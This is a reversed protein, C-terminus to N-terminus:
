KCFARSEVWGFSSEDSAVVVRANADSWFKGVATWVSGVLGGTIKSDENDGDNTVVEDVDAGRNVVEDHHGDRRGLSRVVVDLVERGVGLAVSASAGFELLLEVVDLRGKEFAVKLAAEDNDHVNAGLQICVKITDIHGNSSAFFLAENNRSQISAGKSALLTVIDHYGRFSAERLAASDDYTPDANNDLLWQVALYQGATAAARLADDGGESVDLGLPKLAELFEVDGRGAAAVVAEDAFDELDIAGKELHHMLVPVLEMYVNNYDGGSSSSTSSSSASTVSGRRTSPPRSAIVCDAYYDWDFYLMSAGARLLYHLVLKKGPVWRMAKNLAAHKIEPREALRTRYVVDLLLGAVYLQETRVAECLARHEYRDLAPKHGLLPVLCEIAKATIAFTAVAALERQNMSLIRCHDLFYLVAKRNKSWAAFRFMRRAVKSPKSQDVVHKSVM